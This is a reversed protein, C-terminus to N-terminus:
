TTNNNMDNREHWQKKKECRKENVQKFDSFLGLSVFMIVNYYVLM